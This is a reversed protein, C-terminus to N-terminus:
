SELKNVEEYVGDKNLFYSPTNLKVDDESNYLFKGDPSILHYNSNKMKM